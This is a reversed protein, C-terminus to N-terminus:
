STHIGDGVIVLSSAFTAAHDLISNFDDFFANTVAASGPRYLVVVLVNIASGHVYCGLIM